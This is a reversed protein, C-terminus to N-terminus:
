TYPASLFSLQNTKLSNEKRFKVDARIAKVLEDHTIIKKAILKDYLLKTKPKATRIYRTSPFMGHGDKSPFAEWFEEFNSIPKNALMPTQDDEPPFLLACLESGKATLTKSNTM